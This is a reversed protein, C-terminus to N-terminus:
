VFDILRHISGRVPVREFRRDQPIIRMPMGHAPDLNSGKPEIRANPVIALRYRQLLMALVVKMEQLAFEAGICRHPGAAFPLYEYTTRSLTAWREPKFRDPEEYLEPLRHTVFPSFFITAGKPLAFGGVECPSAAIRMDTPVPTLLRLSEKIVGDLLPLLHLQELTPADGHLKGDLEALLDALVRPHQHLLFIAWTLATSTTVYGAVYLTFTHSILEDDTLKTGDEDHAHVLAALVDTAESESRKRAIMVRVFSELQEALKLMRHYPMGPVDILPTILLWSQSANLEQLLAGVRDIEEEDDLGFLTKITIRQTLKKMETHLDIQSLSQWRELMRQTLAVMDDHYLEIQRKHFAPQMLHRQRKHHEGNMNLLNYFQLRGWATDKPVKLLTGKGVEFLAPQSLLQFNLEPGFAFVYTPDGQAMTVVDGYTDHLWRSYTCPYSFLKLMNAWRGLLPLASPGPITRQPDTITTM